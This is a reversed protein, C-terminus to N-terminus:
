EGKPVLEIVDILSEWRPYPFAIRWRATGVRELIGVMDREADRGYPLPRMEDGLMLSGLFVMRSAGDAYIMGVPRQAGDIKTFRLLAGDQSIRCTFQPYAIYERLGIAQAGMKFTRCQYDGPPPVPSELATDPKLLAGQAAVLAGNGAAVAKDLGTMWAGRWRALRDRDSATAVDRWDTRVDRPTRALARHVGGITACGTAVLLVTFLIAPKWRNLAM